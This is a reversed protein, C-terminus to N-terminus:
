GNRALAALAPRVREFEAELSRLSEPAKSLDGSAGIYQLEAALRSMGHAGMNGSSGKLSHAVREVASADDAKVAEGLAALRPEADELFLEVLDALMDDGGLERLSDVVAPDMPSEPPAHGNGAGEPSEGTTEPTGEIPPVWRELVANLKAPRVPKALYDDMGAELAKERDGALANATMAIIPTHRPSGEERRRIEATAEYGDMEPMQVDMLVAAYTTHALADLAERGNAAVAVDYDLNELMKVAVKQNVPNDEALLILPRDRPPRSVMRKDGRQMRTQRVATQWPVPEQPDAPSGMVSLLCDYLESQRVPKTLYAALGASEARPDDGRRGMSTLLVLRISSLEPAEKIRKALEIGDMGPMHMDLIAMDYPAGTLRAEQLM